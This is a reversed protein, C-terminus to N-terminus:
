GARGVLSHLCAVLSRAQVNVYHSHRLLGVLQNLTLWRHDPYDRPGLEDDTEVILYRTRAHYFRGGEESHTADFRIRALDASLVEDLFPPRDATPLDAYNLVTCQVTPALEVADLYGPELRANALVHLVGDIRKVLFAALSDGAPSLMPQSWQRVERGAAAVDVGIISFYLGTEHSIATPSRVWQEVAALPIRTATTEVRTRTDTIWSLIADTTYQSGSEESCSRLLAMRLETGGTPLLAMLDKGSFPLCSLVTRADMNVMNEFALFRHVLNLPMWHFDPLVVVDGRVEVVMNRNRKQYFWSGQESQLVDSIVRHAATDTFYELYPVPRGKHVRTYNSRTAQVTPSLQIGNCNGPEVKAQMLCHLEGDIEKILIGLIGIEPQNIIPQTWQPIRAGPQRVDLGEIQFFKGSTHGLNGTDPAFSWDSLEALPVPTVTTPNRAACDAYWTEFEAIRAANPASAMTSEAIRIPLNVDSTRVLGSM